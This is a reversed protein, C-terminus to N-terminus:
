FTIQRVDGTQRDVTFVRYAGNVPFTCVLHRSDPAWEPWYGNAIKQAQTGDFKMVWLEPIKDHWSGWAIWQGDPSWAPYRAEFGDNTLRQEGQGLTDMVFLQAESVGPGLRCHVLRTGDPSWDPEFWSDSGNPNLCRAGTGDSAMLWLRYVRNADYTEYALMSGDRSWKVAYGFDSSLIRLSDGTAKVTFVGGVWGNLRGTVALLLGNPSWDPYGYSGSLIQLPQGGTAGVVYIGAREGPEVTGAIHAYAIMTGDPSWSPASDSAPVSEEPRPATVSKSGCGMLAIGVAIPAVLARAASSLALMGPHLRGSM